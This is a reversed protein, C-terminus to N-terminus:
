PKNWDDGRTMRMLEDTSPGGKIIGVYKSFPNVAKKPAKKAASIVVRGHPLTEFQIREGPGVGLYDRIPKPITVQSKVTLAPTM